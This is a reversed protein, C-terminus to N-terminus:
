LECMDAYIFFKVEEDQTEKLAKLLEQRQPNKYLESELIYQAVRLAETNGVELLGNVIEIFFRNRSESYTLNDRLLIMLNNYYLTVVSKFYKSVLERVEQGMYQGFLKGVIKTGENRKTKADQFIDPHLKLSQQISKYYLMIAHIVVFVYFYGEMPLFKRLDTVIRELVPLCSVLSTDFFAKNYRLAILFDNLFEISSETNEKLLSTLRNYFPEWITELKENRESESKCLLLYKAIIRVQMSHCIMRIYGVGSVNVLTFEELFQEIINKIVDSGVDPLINELTCIIPMAKERSIKQIVKLLETWYEVQIDSPIFDVDYYLNQQLRRRQELRLDLNGLVPAVARWVEVDVKDCNKNRKLYMIAARVAAAPRKTGVIAYVQSTNDVREALLLALKLTRRWELSKQVYKEVDVAKCILVKNAIAKVGLTRWDNVDVDLPESHHYNALLAAGLQKKSSGKPEKLCEDIIPRLDIRLLALPRALSAHSESNALQTIAEVYTAALGNEEKFYLSLKKLFGDFNFSHNKLCEIFDNTSTLMKADHRLVNLYSTNTKFVKFTERYLERRAVRENYLRHLLSEASTPDRQVAEVLADIAGPCDKVKLKLASLADLLLGFYKLSDSDAVAATLLLAPLNERVKRKEPVNLKYNTLMSFNDLYAAKLPLPCEEGSLLTRLVAAHMGELCLIPSAGDLGLERGFDLLLSWARPPLRWVCARVVLSRVIAARLNSPENKHREVLLSILKEVQDMNEGCKSVLVLMMFERNKVSGEAMLLKRLEFMTRDFSYFRYRDFLQDLLTKRNPFCESEMCYIDYRKGCKKRIARKFKTPEIYKYKDPEYKVDDFICDLGESEAGSPPSPPPYPWTSVKTGIENQVFVQKKFSAREDVSLKKILPEVNKYSFLNYLYEARALKLVVEKIEEDTLHKALTKMDLLWGAYLETKNTFRHKHNKMIRESIRPSLLGFKHHDYYKEVIDLFLDMDVNVLSKCCNFYDRDKNIYRKLTISNKSFNDYYLKMVQPCYESLIKLHKPTIKDTINLFEAMIFETSCHRLFKMSVNFDDKYYKYFEQCREPDRLNIQLWHKMKNVAPTIMNPYLESELHDPNIISQYESELLWTCKLARSVYLMDELKLTSVIYNADRYKSALDIKFLKDIPSKEPFELIRQLPLKQQYADEVLSNLYRHREGLNDGRLTIPIISSMM